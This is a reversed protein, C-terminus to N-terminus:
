ESLLSQKDELNKLRREIMLLFIFVATLIIALVAVAVFIKHHGGMFSEGGSTEGQAFLAFASLLSLVVALIKKM